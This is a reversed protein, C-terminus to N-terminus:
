AMCVGGDIDYAQGTIMRADDGALYVVMPAVDRLAGAIAEFDAVETRHVAGEDIPAADLALFQM